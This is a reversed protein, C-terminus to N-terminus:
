LVWAMQKQGTSVEVEMKLVHSAEVVVAVVVSKQLPM